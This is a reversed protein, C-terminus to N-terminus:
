LDGRINDMKTENKKLEIHYDIETIQEQYYELSDWLLISAELELKFPLDHENFYFIKGNPAAITIEVLDIGTKITQRIYEMKSEIRKKWAELDSVNLNFENM